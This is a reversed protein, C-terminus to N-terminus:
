PMPDMENITRMARGFTRNKGDPAIKDYINVFFDEFESLFSGFESLPWPLYRAMRGAAAFVVGFNVAAKRPDAQISATTLADLAKGMKNLARIDLIAGEIKDLHGSLGDLRESISGLNQSFANDIDSFDAATSAYGALTQAKKLYKGYRENADLYASGLPNGIVNMVDGLFSM